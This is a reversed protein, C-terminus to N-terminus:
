LGWHLSLGKLYPKVMSKRRLFEIDGTVAIYKYVAQILSSEQDTEVTNKHFAYGPVDYRTFRAYSDINMGPTIEQYGDVMNGDFGQFCFFLLLADRVERRPLVKLSHKIFTNLDRIWAEQYHSGANFGTKLIEIGRNYVSDFLHNSRIKDALERNDPM